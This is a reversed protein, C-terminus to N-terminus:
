REHLAERDFTPIEGLEFGQEMRTMARRMAREYEDDTDVLQQIQDTVLGSISTSRKAALVRVQQITQRSLRLTLNQKEGLAPM